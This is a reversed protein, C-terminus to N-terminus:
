EPSETAASSLRGVAQTAVTALQGVVKYNCTNLATNGRGNNFDACAPAAQVRAHVYVGVLPCLARLTGRSGRGLINNTM